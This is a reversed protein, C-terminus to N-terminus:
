GWFRCGWLELTGCFGCLHRGAGVVAKRGEAFVAACQVGDGFSGTDGFKKDASELTVFAIAPTYIKGVFQADGDESNRPSFYVNDPTFFIEGIPRVVNKGAALLPFM